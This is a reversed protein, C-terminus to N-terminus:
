SIAMRQRLYFEALAFDEETDIDVSHADDMILPSFVHATHSRTKLLRERSMAYISANLVYYIGPVVEAADPKIQCVNPHAKRRIQKVSAVPYGLRLLGIAYDIHSSERVPSTPHLCIVADYGPIREMADILVEGSTCEDSHLRGGPACQLVKAGYSKAVSAIEDDDTSVVFDIGAKQAADVTWWILPKGCLERLNKRPVRKSGGRAPIVGLVKL